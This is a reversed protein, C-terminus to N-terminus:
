RNTTSAVQLANEKSDWFSIASLVSAVQSEFRSQEATKPAPTALRMGLTALWGVFLVGTVVTAVRLAAERREHPPRQKM